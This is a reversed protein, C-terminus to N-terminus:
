GAISESTLSLDKTHIYDFATHNLPISAIDIREDMARYIRKM